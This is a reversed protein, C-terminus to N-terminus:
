NSGMQQLLPFVHSPQMKHVLRCGCMFHAELWPGPLGGVMGAAPILVQVFIVLPVHFLQEEHETSAQGAAAM